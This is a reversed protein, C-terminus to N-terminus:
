KPLFVTVSEFYTQGAGFRGSDSCFDLRRVRGQFACDKACSGVVTM